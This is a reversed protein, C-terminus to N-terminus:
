THAVAYLDMNEIDIEYSRSKETHVYSLFLSKGLLVNLTFLSMSVQSRKMSEQTQNLRM